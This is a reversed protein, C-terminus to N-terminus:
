KCLGHIAKRADSAVQRTIDGAEHCDILVQAFGAAEMLLSESHKTTTIPWRLRALLTYNKEFTSGTQISLEATSMDLQLVRGSEHLVKVKM